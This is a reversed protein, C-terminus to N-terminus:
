VNSCCSFLQQKLLLWFDKTLSGVNRTEKMMSLAKMALEKIRKQLAVLKELIYKLVFNNAGVLKM